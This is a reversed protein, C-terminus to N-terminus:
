NQSFVCSCPLPLSLVSRSDWAPEASHACLGVRSLSVFRSIMVQASTADQAAGAPCRPRQTRLLPTADGPGVSAASQTGQWGGSWAPTGLAPPRGVQLAWGKRRRFSGWAGSQARHAPGALPLVQASPPIHTGTLPARPFHGCTHVPLSARPVTGSSARDRPGGGRLGTGLPESRTCFGGSSCM